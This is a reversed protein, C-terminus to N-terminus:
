RWDFAPIVPRFALKAIESKLTQKLHHYVSFLYVDWKVTLSKCLTIIITSYWLRVFLGHRNSVICFRLFQICAKVQEADRGGDM